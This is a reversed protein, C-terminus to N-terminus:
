HPQKYWRDDGGEEKPWQYQYEGGRVSVGVRDSAPPTGEGSTTGTGPDVDSFPSPTAGGYHFKDDSM